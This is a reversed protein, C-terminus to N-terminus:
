AEGLSLEEAMGHIGAIVTALLHFVGPFKEDAIAVSSENVCIRKILDRTPELLRPNDQVADLERDKPARCIFDLHKDFEPLFRLIVLGQFEKKQAELLARATAEDADTLESEELQLVEGSLGYLEAVKAGLPLICGPAVKTLEELKPSVLVARLFKRFGDVRGQSSRLDSFEKLTPRRFEIRQGYGNVVRNM